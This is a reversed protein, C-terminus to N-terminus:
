FTPGVDLSFLWEGGERVGAELALKGLPTWWLLGLGAGATWRKSWLDGADAAITGSRLRLRLHSELPAAMAVDFGTIAM